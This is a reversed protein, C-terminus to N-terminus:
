RCAVAAGWACNVRCRRWCWGALLVGAGCLAAVLPAPGLLGGAHRVLLVADSRVAAVADLGFRTLVGALLAAAIAQPIRDM